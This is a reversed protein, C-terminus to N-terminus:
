EFNELFENKRQKIKSDQVSSEQLLQNHVTLDLFKVVVPKELTIMQKKIKWEIIRPNLFTHKGYSETLKIFMTFFDINRRDMFITISYLKDEYFQFVANDIFKAGDCSIIPFESFPLFSVSEEFYVFEKSARLEEKVNEINMGLKISGFGIPSFKEEKEEGSEEAGKDLSNEVERSNAETSGDFAITYVEDAFSFGALMFIFLFFSVLKKM